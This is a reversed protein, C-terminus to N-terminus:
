IFLSTTFDPFTPLTTTCVKGRQRGAGSLEGEKQTGNGNFDKSILVDLASIYSNSCM